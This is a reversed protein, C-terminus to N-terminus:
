PLPWVGPSQGRLYKACTYKYNTWYGRDRAEVHGDAHLTNTAKNHRLHVMSDSPFANDDIQWSQVDYIAPIPYQSVSDAVIPFDAAPRVLNFKKFKQSSQLRAAMQAAPISPDEWAIMGYTKQYSNDTIPWYGIYPLSQFVNWL